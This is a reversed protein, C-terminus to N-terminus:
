DVVFMASEFSVWSDSEVMGVNEILDISSSLIQSLHQVERFDYLGTLRVLMDFCTLVLLRMNPNKNGCYGIEPHEDGM